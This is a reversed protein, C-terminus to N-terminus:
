AQDIYIDTEDLQNLIQDDLVYIQHMQFAKICFIM